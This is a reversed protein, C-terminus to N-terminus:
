GRRTESEGVVPARESGERNLRRRASFMAANPEVIPAFGLLGPRSGNEKTALFVSEIGGRISYTEHWFSVGTPRALFDKWWQMHPLERTWKELSEFDRWYERMAVHLPFLSMIINGEHHLLGEPKREVAKMIQPGLKMLSLFGGFSHAKMGLYVVVLDPYGSLDTTERSIGIM